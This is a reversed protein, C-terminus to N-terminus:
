RNTLPPGDPPRYIVREFRIGLTRTDGNQITANPVATPSVSYDVRCARQADPVVPVSFPVDVQGPRVIKLFHRKGVTATIKQVFPHSKPDGTMRATVTGGSCNYEAYTVAPGSWLDPYIGELQGRVEIPGGVRYVTMALGNDRAVPKGSLILSADALVYHATVPRSLYTVAGSPQLAVTEQPLGDPAGFFNYVKGVSRNFFENDWLTVYAARGSWLAAVDPRTGVARDIWDPRAQIGGLRAQVAAAQTRRHVPGAALVFALLALAPLVIGFRRPVLVFVAAALAAAALVLSQLQGPSVIHRDLVGNLTLLSFADNYASSGLFSTYTMMGVVGVACVAAVAAATRSRWLLGKGVCAVLAILFLPDLYFVSREEIRLGFSTSAFAAVGLLVWFAASLAVAAFIRLERSRQRPDLGVFVLLLLAAFPIVFLSFDLEALHYVFWRGVGSVTYHSRSLSSYSGLLTSRWDQGRVGAQLGIYAGAGGFIVVWIPLFRAASRWLSPLFPRMRAADLVAVLVVATLLAPVLVLAQPRTFYAVAVMAVVSLQRWVTPRELARVTLWCWFLFIPYFANETMIAATYTVDPVSVALLAAALALWQGVLRRALLFAPVAALSMVACNIAKMATYAVPVSSFLAYAPSLLVPYVVGFGSRGPVERLAFHGTAAFSKALEGYLVEDTFTWPSPYGRAIVFRVAASLVVLGSVWAWVPVREAAEVLGRVAAPSHAPGPRGVAVDSAADLRSL